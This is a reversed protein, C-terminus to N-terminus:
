SNKVFKKFVMQKKSFLRNNRVFKFIDKKEIYIYTHLLIAISENVSCKRVRGIYYLM